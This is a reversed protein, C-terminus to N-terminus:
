AYGVGSDLFRTKRLSTKDKHNEM